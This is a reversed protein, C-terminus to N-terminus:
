GDFRTWDIPHDALPALASRHTAGAWVDYAGSYGPSVHLVLGPAVHFRTPAWPWFARLPVPHLPRVLQEVQAAPLNGSMATYKAGVAAEFLSFQILFGSLPEQEAVPEEDPELFWVAPDAESGDPPWRLCWDFGGQNETGFVLMKGLRTTRLDPGPLIGNQVGLVQPRAEALRYFQRLGAPLAGTPASPSGATVPGDAPYWGIVFRELAAARDGEVEGLWELGPLDASPLPPRVRDLVDTRLPSDLRLACDTLVDGSLCARGVRATGLYLIGEGSRVALHIPLPSGTRGGPQGVLRERVPDPAPGILRVEGASWVGSRDPVDWAEAIIVTGASGMVVDAGGVAFRGTVPGGVLGPVQEGDFVSAPIAPPVLHTM